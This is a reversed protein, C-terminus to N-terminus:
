QSYKSKKMTFQEFDTFNYENVKSQREKYYTQWPYEPDVPVSNLIYISLRELISEVKYGSCMKDRSNQPIRYTLWPEYKEIINNCFKIREETSLTTDLAIDDNGILINNYNM